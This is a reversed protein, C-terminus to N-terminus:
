SILMLYSFRCSSILIRSFTEKECDLIEKAEEFASVRIPSNQYLIREFVNEMSSLRYLLLFLYCCFRQPKEGNVCDFHSCGCMRFCSSSLPPAICALSAPICVTSTLLILNKCVRLLLSKPSCTWASLFCYTFLLFLYLFLQVSPWHTQPIISISAWFVIDFGVVSRFRANYTWNSSM